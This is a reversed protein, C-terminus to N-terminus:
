LLYSGFCPGAGELLRQVYEQLGQNEEMLFDAIITDIGRSTQDFLQMNDETRVEHQPNQSEIPLNSFLDMKHKFEFISVGVTSQAWDM